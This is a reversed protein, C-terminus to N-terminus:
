EDVVVGRVVFFEEVIALEFFWVKIEGKAGVDNDNNAEKVMSTMLFIIIIEITITFISSFFSTSAAVIITAVLIFMDDLILHFYEFQSLPSNQSSIYHIKNIFIFSSYTFLNEM